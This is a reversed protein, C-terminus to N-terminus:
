AKPDVEGAIIGAELEALRAKTADDIMADFEYFPSLGTGGNALTGVYADGNFAGGASLEAVIDYVANTMRKEASTLVLDAYEPSTLAVDKDVGVMVGAIGAEKIAESVAGFQDGGVPFVVDAGANIQAAAIAKSTGSNPVFDGIFDGTMAVPDWGVVTVEVGNEMGWAMAGYYFGDMFDTVAPIQVGGYTGVVKTTSYAASVYGALYSSEAMNYVVPKLNANGESWGDITVFTTDPYDPAVESLPASMAFGMTIIPNAGVEAFRRLAQERQAESQLEIELYSGGTETAWKEAGNYGAENFSKDFKGGLDFIIAPEAAVAGATLALAATAGLLKKTLTM